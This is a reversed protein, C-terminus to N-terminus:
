FAIYNINVSYYLHKNFLKTFKDEDDVLFFKYEFSEDLYSLFKNVIESENTEDKDTSFLIFLNFNVKNNLNFGSKLINIIEKNNDKTENDFSETFFDVLELNISSDVNCKFTKISKINDFRAIECLDFIKSIDEELSIM